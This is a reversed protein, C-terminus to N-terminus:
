PALRIWHTHDLGAGRMSETYKMSVRMEVCVDWCVRVCMCGCFCVCVSVVVGVGVGWCVCVCAGGWVRVRVHVQFDVLAPEQERLAAEAARLKTQLAEV